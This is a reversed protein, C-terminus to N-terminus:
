QYSKYIADIWYDTNLFEFYVGWGKWLDIFLMPHDGKFYERRGEAQHLRNM